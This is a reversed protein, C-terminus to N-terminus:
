DNVPVSVRRLGRRAAVVMDYVADSDRWSNVINVDKFVTEGQLRILIRTQEANARAVEHMRGSWKTIYPGSDTGPKM